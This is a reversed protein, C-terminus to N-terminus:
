FTNTSHTLSRIPPGSGEQASWFRGFKISSWSPSHIYPVFSVMGLHCADPELDCTQFPLRMRPQCPTCHATTTAEAWRGLRQAALRLRSQSEERTSTLSSGGVRGSQGWVTDRLAARQLRSSSLHPNLPKFRPENM